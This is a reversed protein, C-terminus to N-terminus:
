NKLSKRRRKGSEELRCVLSCGTSYKPFLRFDGTSISLVCFFDFFQFSKKEFCFVAFSLFCVVLIFVVM